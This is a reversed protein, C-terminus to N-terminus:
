NINVHKREWPYIFYMNIGEQAYLIYLAQPDFQLMLIISSM